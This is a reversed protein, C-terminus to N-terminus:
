KATTHTRTYQWGWIHGLDASQVVWSLKPHKKELKKAALFVGVSLIGNSVYMANSHVFPKGLPNVEVGGHAVSFRTSHSDLAGFTLQAAFLILRIKKGM